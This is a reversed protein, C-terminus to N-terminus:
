GQFSLSDRLPRTKPWTVSIQFKPAGTIDQSDTFSLMEFETHRNIILRVLEHM